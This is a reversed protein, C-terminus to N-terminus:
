HIFRTYVYVCVYVCVGWVCLCVRVAMSPCKPQEWVKTIAFLAAILMATCTDRQCLTKMRKPYIGPLPVAPGYPLEIKLRKLFRWVTRRLPQVPKSELMACTKNKWMRMLM